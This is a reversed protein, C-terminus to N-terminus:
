YCGGIISLTCHKRRKQYEIQFAANLYNGNVNYFHIFDANLNRNVFPAWQISSDLHDRHQLLFFYNGNTPFTYNILVAKKCFLSLFAVHLLSTQKSQLQAASFTIYPKHTDGWVAFIGGYIKHKNMKGNTLHLASPYWYVTAMYYFRNPVFRFFDSITPEMSIALTVVMKWWRMM